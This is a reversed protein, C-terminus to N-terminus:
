LDKPTLALHLLNSQSRKEQTKLCTEHLGPQSESLLSHGQVESGGTEVEQTSPNCSAGFFFDFLQQCAYDLIQPLHLIHGTPLDM